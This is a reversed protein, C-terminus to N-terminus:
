SKSDTNLEELETFEIIVQTLKSLEEKKIIYPPMIYLLKGFPRIWVGKSVFFAQAMKLDVADKMEVVGIAGLVRVDSVTTSELCVKLETLLQQEISKVTEQWPSELLLKISAIATACALPNGMFTPGHMFVGGDKSIGASVKETCLTAALSMYGGTLAKGLCLIDPAINAHECAFLKGTRGFGTAIEDAILLVDYEDCLTRVRTLYDASYFWMGGTAQVIPELIIAAIKDQHSQLLSKISSIDKESCLDGFRCAPKEAFYNLPMSDKFLHHMGTVPDCVSMATFTDGHYAGRLSLIKSKTQKGQNIWFQKAMKIAVEVAVSGSDSIFIKQLSPPTISILLKALEIAPEHTLGGFMVHAMNELQGCVAKNLEPRNYGHIMSWWSAMGDILRRGDELQIYVGEAKVVPYVPLPTQMSTYPHWIHNKDFETDIM